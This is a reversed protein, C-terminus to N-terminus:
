DTFRTCRKERWVEELKTKDRKESSSLGAREEKNLIDELEEDTEDCEWQDQNRDQGKQLLELAKTQAELSKLIAVQQQEVSAGEHDQAYAERTIWGYTGWASLVAVMAGILAGITIIKTTLPTSM